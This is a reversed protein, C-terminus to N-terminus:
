DGNYEDENMAEEVEKRYQHAMGANEIQILLKEIAERETVLGRFHNWHVNDYTPNAHLPAQVNKNVLLDAITENIEVLREQLKKIQPKTINM